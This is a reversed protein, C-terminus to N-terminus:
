TLHNYFTGSFQLAIENNMTATRFFSALFTIAQYTAYTLNLTYTNSLGRSDTVELLYSTATVDEITRRYPSGGSVVNTGGIKISSLSAGYRLTPVATIRANSLGSVLLTASGTIATIATNLDTYSGTITPTCSATAISLTITVTKTGILTGGSYTECTIVCSGSTASPIRNQLSLAPTWNYSTGVGTAITDTTGGFTAKLTHTFSDSARAISIPVSSGITGNGATPTSTRPITPLEWWGSGTSNYSGSYYFAGGASASFSRNGATDHYLRATGSFPTMGNVTKESTANSQTSGDVTVYKEKVYVYKSATIGGYAVLNWAIDTYNGEISYGTRWWSFTYHDPCGVATGTPVYGYTDFSGGTVQAM